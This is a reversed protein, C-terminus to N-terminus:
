RNPNSVVQYGFGVSGLLLTSGIVALVGAPPSLKYQRWVVIGNVVGALGMVKIPTPVQAAEM